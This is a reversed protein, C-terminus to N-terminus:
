ESVSGIEIEVQEPAGENALVRIAEERSIAGSEDEDEEDVSKYKKREENQKMSGLNKAAQYMEMSHEMLKNEDKPPVIDGNAIRRFITMIKATDDAHEAAKENDEKMREMQEQFMKLQAQSYRDSQTKKRQEELKQYGEESLELSVGDLSDADPVNGVWNEVGSLKVYRQTLDYKNTIEEKIGTTNMILGGQGTTFIFVIERNNGKDSLNCINIIGERLEKRLVVSILFPQRLIGVQM